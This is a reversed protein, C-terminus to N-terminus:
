FKLIIFTLVHYGRLFYASPILSTQTETCFTLLVPFLLVPFSSSFRTLFASLLCWFPM